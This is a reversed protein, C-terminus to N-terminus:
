SFEAPNRLNKHVPLPQLQNLLPPSKLLKMVTTYCPSGVDLARKCADELEKKSYKNAFQLVGMCGRYATEEFVQAKLMKEIVLHTSIGITGAWTLYDEGTRRSAEAHQRHREPM